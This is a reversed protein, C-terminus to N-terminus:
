RFEQVEGMRMFFEALGSSLGLYIRATRGLGGVAAPRARPLVEEAPAGAQPAPGAGRGACRPSRTESRSLSFYVALFAQFM